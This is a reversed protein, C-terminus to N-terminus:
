EITLSGPPHLPSFNKDKTIDYYDFLHTYHGAQEIFRDYSILEHDGVCPAWPDLIEVMNEGEVVKYGIVVMMHGGGGVWAWSFAIPKNGCNEGSSVQRRIEDWTLPTYTINDSFGYKDFEIWGGKVCPHTSVPNPCLSINCCDIRGFLENAQICQAVKTGFSEMVMQGSAAWCWANTEQPRSTIDLSHSELPTCGHGPLPAFAAVMAAVYCLIRSAM